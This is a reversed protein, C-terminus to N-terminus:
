VKVGEEVDLVFMVAGGVPVEVPEMTVSDHQEGLLVSPVVVRTRCTQGLLVRPNEIRQEGVGIMLTTNGEHLLGSISALETVGFAHETLACGHPPTRM